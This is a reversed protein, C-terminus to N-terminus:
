PDGLSWALTKQPDKLRQQDLVMRYRGQSDLRYIRVGPQFYGRIGEQLARKALERERLRIAVEIRRGLNRPRWDASSIFVGREGKRGFAIVRSHELFSGLFARVAVFGGSPYVKPRLACQGRVLLRVKVGAQAARHLADILPTDTLANMRAWVYADQGAQARRTERKLRRLWFRRMQSPAVILQRSSIREGAGFMQRFLALIDRGLVSSRAMYSFDTYIRSTKLNYNGTGVHVYHALGTEELRTVVGLKAHTKLGKVGLAVNVGAARLLQSVEVNHAEDFRARLEILVHVDKGNLAAQSLAEVISSNEEARYLTHHISLTKPDAAALHLFRAYAELSEYPHHLLRAKQSLAEFPAETWEPLKPKPWQSVQSPAEELEDQLNPLAVLAQVEYPAQWASIRDLDLELEESLKQKVKLPAHAALEVWVVDGFQRRMLGDSIASVLDDSEEEDVWLDADRLVRFPYVGVLVMKPFLLELYRTVQTIRGQYHRPQLGEFPPMVKAPPLTVVAFKAERGFTDQGALEVLLHTRGHLVRPFPRSEDLAVPTLLPLYDREFHSRRAKPRPAKALLSVDQSVEIGQQGLCLLLHAAIADRRALLGKALQTLHAVQAKAELGDLSMAGVGYTARQVWAALKVAFFEDLNSCAIALFQLREQLTLEEREAQDLVRGHFALLSAEANFYRPQFDATSDTPM